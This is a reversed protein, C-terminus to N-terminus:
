QQDAGTQERIQDVRPDIQKRAYRVYLLTIIATSLFQLLGLILGMNVAGFVKESMFLPAYASLLVYSFYWALFLGGMPFIFVRLRRRLAAFETSNHIAAFDPETSITRRAAPQAANGFAPVGEPTRRERRSRDTSSAVPTSM